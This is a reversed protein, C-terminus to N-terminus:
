FCKANLSELLFLYSHIEEKDGVVLITSPISKRYRIELRVSVNLFKLLNM